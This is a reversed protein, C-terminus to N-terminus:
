EYKFEETAVKYLYINIIYESNRNRYKCYAKRLFSFYASTTKYLELLELLLPDDDLLLVLMGVTPM